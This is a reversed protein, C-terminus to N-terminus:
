GGQLGPSELLLKELLRAGQRLERPPVAAFGLLLGSRPEPRQGSLGNGTAFYPSLPRVDLGHQWATDSFAQDNRGDCFGVAVHLGADASGIDILGKMRGTMADLSDLLSARREAYADRTRKIHRSFHGEVIFDALTMQPVIPCGRDMLAKAQVFAEVLEVPAVLYGLRLAPFLVKSLTGTYIVCGTRDLSQLSALPPGSYRYESDYDDEVIWAQRSAAWALLELRRQLSMTVGLPLQHSPTVYALRADPFREIGISVQMGDSDVPVPCVAAQAAHLPATVGRYGPDEVWARDGPSLLLMAALFLAQQSGSTIIVQSADCQVGRSTRLYAALCERLPAYGAPDDYGFHHDHRRWRRAELRGWVDFPFLDIGPMGSRFARARGDHINLRTNAAVFAAGRTSLPRRPVPSAIRAQESHRRLGQAVFTGKGVTGSLYGEAMLQDYANLITQRSVGLQGALDRTPPLQTGAGLQGSLIATRIAVYLQRFLPEKATTDLSITTLSDAIHM